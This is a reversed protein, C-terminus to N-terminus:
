SVPLKVKATGVMIKEGSQNFVYTGLMAKNEEIKIIEVQATLTDNIYAPAVYKSNQELYITGNGPLITGLVTSILSSTLAGHVVRKKFLSKEAAVANIHVPNFDGTIGAFLYVDSESITKTFSAKQGVEFKM